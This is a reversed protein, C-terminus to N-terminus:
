IQSLGVAWCNQLDFLALFRLGVTAHTTNLSVGTWLRSFSSKTQCCAQHSLHHSQFGLVPLHGSIHVRPSTQFLAEGVSLGLTSSTDSRMKKKKKKVMEQMRSTDSTWLWEDHACRHGNWQEDTKIRWKLSRDQSLASPPPFFLHM